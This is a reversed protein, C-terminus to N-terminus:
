CLMRFCTTSGDCVQWNAKCISSYVIHIMIHKYNIWKRLKYYNSCFFSGDSSLLLWEHENIVHHLIGRWVGKFLCFTNVIVFSSYHIMGVTVIQTLWKNHLLFNLHLFIVSLRYFCRSSLLECPGNPMNSTQEL